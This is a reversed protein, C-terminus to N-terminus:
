NTRRFAMLLLRANDPFVIQMIAEMDADMTRLEEKSAHGPLDSPDNIVFTCDTMLTVQLYADSTGFVLMGGDREEVVHVM